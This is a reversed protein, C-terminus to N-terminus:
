GFPIPCWRTHEARGQGGRSWGPYVCERRWANAFALMDKLLESKQEDTADEFPYQDRKFDLATGEDESLLADLQRTDMAAKNESPDQEPTIRGPTGTAPNPVPLCPSALRLAFGPSVPAAKRHRARGLRRGKGRFLEAVTPSLGM